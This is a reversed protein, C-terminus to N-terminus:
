RSKRSSKELLPKSLPAFGVQLGEHINMPLPGPYVPISWPKNIVPKGELANLLNAALTMHLMGEVIISRILSAIVTNRDHKISYLAQLYAPITAHELEIASQLFEYLDSAQQAARISRIIDSRIKLM